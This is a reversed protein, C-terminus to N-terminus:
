VGEGAHTHAVSGAAVQAGVGVKHDCCRLDQGCCEGCIRCTCTLESHAIWGVFVVQFNCCCALAVALM